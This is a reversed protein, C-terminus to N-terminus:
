GRSPSEEQLWWAGASELRGVAVAVSQTRITRCLVVVPSIHLKQLQERCGKNMEPEEAHRTEVSKEGEWGGRGTASGSYM